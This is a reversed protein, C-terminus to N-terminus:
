KKVYDVGVRLPHSFAHNAIRQAYQQRLTFRYTLNIEFPAGKHYDHAKLKGEAITGDPIYLQNPKVYIPKHKDAKDSKPAVWVWSICTLEDIYSIFAEDGLSIAEEINNFSIGKVFFYKNKINDDPYLCDCLPTICMYYINDRFHFIDGFNVKREETLASGNYFTNIKAIEGSSAKPYKPTIATLFDNDLIALQEERLNLKAQAILLDKIFLEFPLDDLVGNIQHRHYLFTKLSINLLNSDVFSGKRAFINQMEIGLLQTFSNTSNTIQNSLRSVLRKPDRRHDKKILTVITNNIVIIKNTKDIIEPLPNPTVSKIFTPNVAIKIAILAKKIDTTHTAALADRIFGDIGALSGILRQNKLHDYIDVNELVPRIQDLYPTIDLEIQEYEARTRGSFFSIVNDFVDSERTTATYIACFHLHASAVVDALLKLSYEKGTAYDRDLEWDLLVLDRNDFLYRILDPKGLDSAVFKHVTLSSGAQKFKNFLKISLSEEPVPTAPLPVYSELAKEDIFVVSKISDTIIKNATQTYLRSAM